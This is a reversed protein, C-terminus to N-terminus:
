LNEQDKRLKEVLDNTKVAARTIKDRIDGRFVNVVRADNIAVVLESFQTASWEVVKITNNAQAKNRERLDDNEAQLQKLMTELTVLRSALADHEQGLAPTHALPATSLTNLVPLFAEPLMGLRRAVTAASAPEKIRIRTAGEPEVTLKSGPFAESLAAPDVSVGSALQFNRAHPAKM